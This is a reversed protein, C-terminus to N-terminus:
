VVTFWSVVTGCEGLNRISFSSDHDSSIGNIEVSDADAMVPSQGAQHEEVTESVAASLQVSSSSSSSSSSISLFSKGLQINKSTLIAQTDYPISVQPDQDLGLDPQQLVPMQELQLPGQTSLSAEVLSAESNASPSMQPPDSVDCPRNNM